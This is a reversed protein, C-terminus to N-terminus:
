KSWRIPKHVLFGAAERANASGWVGQAGGRRFEDGMWEEGPGPLAVGIGMRSDGLIIEMDRKQSSIWRKVFTAPDKSLSTFFSHRAKSHHLSQVIFAIERNLEAIRLIEVKFAEDRILVSTIQDQLSDPAPVQVEYATPTPNAQYGQDVRITYALQIPAPAIIHPTLM